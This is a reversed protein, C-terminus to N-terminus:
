FEDDDGGRAVPKSPGNFGGFTTTASGFGGTSGSGFSFGPTTSGGFVPTPAPSPIQSDPESKPAASSGGFNFVPATNALPLATSTTSASGFSFLPKKEEPKKEEEAPKDSEKEEKKVSQFNFSPAKPEAVVTSPSSSSFGFTPAPVTPRPTSLPVPVLPEKKQGTGHEKEISERFESYQKLVLTLDTLPDEEVFKRVSAAVSENLGRIQKYYKDDSTTPAATQFSFSPVPTVAPASSSAPAATGGFSFL